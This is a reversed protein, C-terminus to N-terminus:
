ALEHRSKSNNMGETKPLDGRIVQVNRYISCKPFFRQRPHKKQSNVRQNGFFIREMKFRFHALFSGNSIWCIFYLTAVFSYQREEAYRVGSVLKIESQRTFVCLRGTQLHHPWAFSIRSRLFVCKTKINGQNM